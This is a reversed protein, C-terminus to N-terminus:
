PQETPFSKLAANRESVLTTKLIGGCHNSNRLGKSLMVFSIKAFADDSYVPKRGPGKKIVDKKKLRKKKEGQISSIFDLIDPLGPSSKDKRM